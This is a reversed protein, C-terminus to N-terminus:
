LQAWSSIDIHGETKSLEILREKVNSYPTYAVFSIGNITAAEMDSIADGFMIAKNSKEEYLIHKIIESKSTPSGFIGKFYKELGRKAFVDVLESEESGSAIYKPVKHKSIFDLFGDTLSAKLYLERCFDSYKKLLRDYIINEEDELGYIQSIFHKIHHFRSKGFNSSFYSLCDQNKDQDEFISELSKKMAGIKLANSDLVVGDCDFILVEYDSIQLM